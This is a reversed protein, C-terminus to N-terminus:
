QNWEVFPIPWSCRPGVGVLLRCVRGATGAHRTPAHHPAVLPKCCIYCYLWTDGVNWEKKLRM